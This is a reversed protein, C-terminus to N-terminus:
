GKAFWDEGDLNICARIEENRILTPISTLHRRAICFRQSCGSKRAPTASRAVNALGARQGTCRSRTEAGQTGIRWGSRPFRVKKAVTLSFVVDVGDHDM